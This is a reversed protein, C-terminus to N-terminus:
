YTKWSWYYSWQYSRCSQVLSTSSWVLTRASKSGRNFRSFRSFFSGTVSKAVKLLGSYAVCSWWYTLRYSRVSWLWSWTGSRPSQRLRCRNIASLHYDPIISRMVEDLIEVTVLKNTWIFPVYIFNNYCVLVNKIFEEWISRLNESGNAM